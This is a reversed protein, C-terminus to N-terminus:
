SDSAHQKTAQLSRRRRHALSSVQVKGGMYYKGREMAIMQVAPHELTTVGYVAKAEKVQLLWIHCCRQHHHATRGHAQLDAKAAGHM